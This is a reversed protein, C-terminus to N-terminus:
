VTVEILTIESKQAVAKLQKDLSLLHSRYQRACELVYADYAYMKHAYVLRVAGTLRLKTRRIPIEAFQALVREADEM